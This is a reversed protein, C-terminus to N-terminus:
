AVGIFNSSIPHQVVFHNVLWCSAYAKVYLYISWWGGGLIVLYVTDGIEFVWYSIAEQAMNGIFHHRRNWIGLLSICGEELDLFKIPTANANYTPQLRRLKVGICPITQLSVGSTKTAGM